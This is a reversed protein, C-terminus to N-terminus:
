SKEKLALVLYDWLDNIKLEMDEPKGSNDFVFNAVEKKEDIPLQSKLINAAQSEDIGDRIVLRKIQEEKPIYVVVVKDFMHMLNLEILLPIEAQIIASSNEKKIKKEKQHFADFIAPHTISELKKRKEPDSFVIGSVKKRDLTGDDCLVNNGFFETIQKLAPKGKEVVERALIDFDILEAGKAKLLRSVTSKGTAIGGTVGVLLGKKNLDKEM